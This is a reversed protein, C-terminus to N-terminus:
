AGHDARSCGPRHRDGLICGCEPCVQDVWCAPDGGAPAVVEERNSSAQNSRGREPFPVVEFFEIFLRAAAEPEVEHEVGPPIAQVDGTGLTRDIPPNTRARFALRGEAAVLRGWTGAALRHSRRLGAPLSGANWEASRRAFRLGAPLETRDCLPCGLPSGLHAAREEEELVWPRVQFPPRHRVHQNHGCDLEAM